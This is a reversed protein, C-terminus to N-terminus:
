HAANKMISSYLSTCGHDFFGDVLCSLIFCFGKTMEDWIYECGSKDIIGHQFLLIQASFTKLFYDLKSSDESSHLHLGTYCSSAVTVM